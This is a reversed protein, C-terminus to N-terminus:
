KQTSGYQEIVGELIRKTDAGVLDIGDAYYYQVDDIKWFERCLTKIYSIACDAVPLKGGATLILVLKKAKCLSYYNGDKDLDFTIGQTCVLELYDHVIAPLGFNWFPAAIVIEDVQSFQKAYDYMSDKYTHKRGDECYQELSKRLLPRLDTDGLEVTEIDEQYRELYKEALMYTRSDKRFAGNVFLVTM